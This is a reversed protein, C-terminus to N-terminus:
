SCRGGCRAHPPLPRDRRVAHRGGLHFQVDPMSRATSMFADIGKRPQIQGACIAVFADEAIGAKRVDERWGPQPRFRSVDVANPVVGVPAKLNMRKLGADVETSVALVEDALEDFASFTWRGRDAAVAARAHLQGRAVGARHRCHRRRARSCSPAPVAARGMTEIHVIIKDGTSNIRVDVGARELANATQVSRPRSATARQATSRRLFWISSLSRTGRRTRVDHGYMETMVHQGWDNARHRAGCMGSARGRACRTRAARRGRCAARMLSEINSWGYTLSTSLRHRSGESKPASCSFLRSSAYGDNFWCHMVIFAENWQSRIRRARYIGAVEESSASEGVM